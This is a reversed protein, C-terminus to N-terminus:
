SEEINVSDLFIFSKSGRGTFDSDWEIPRFYKKEALWWQEGVCIEFDVSSREPLLLLDKHKLLPVLTKSRWSTRRSMSQHSVLPILESICTCHAKEEETDEGWYEYPRQEILGKSVKEYYDRLDFLLLPYCDMNSAKM